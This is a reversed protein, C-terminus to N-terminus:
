PMVRPHGPERDADVDAARLERPPASRRRALARLPLVVGLAVAIVGVLTYLV